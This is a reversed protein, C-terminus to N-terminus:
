ENRAYDEITPLFQWHGLAYVHQFVCTDMRERSCGLRDAQAQHHNVLDGFPQPFAAEKEAQGSDGNYQPHKAFFAFFLDWFPSPGEATLQAIVSSQRSCGDTPHPRASPAVAQFGAHTGQFSNAQVVVVPLSGLGRNIEPGSSLLSAVSPWAAIREDDVLLIINGYTGDGCDCFCRIRVALLLKKAKVMAHLLLATAFAPLIYKNHSNVLRMTSLSDSSLTTGALSLEYQSALFLACDYSTKSVIQQVALLDRDGTPRDVISRCLLFFAIMHASSTPQFWDLLFLPTNKLTDETSLVGRRTRAALNSTFIRIADVISAMYSDLDLRGTSLIHAFIAARLQCLCDGVNKPDFEQLGLAAKLAETSNSGLVASRLREVERLM